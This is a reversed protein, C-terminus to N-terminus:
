LIHNSTHCFSKFLFQLHNTNPITRLYLTLIKYQFNTIRMWNGDFWFSIYFKLYFLIGINRNFSYIFLQYSSNSSFYTRCTFRFWIFTLTYFINIFVNSSFDTFGTLPLSHITHIFTTLPYSTM